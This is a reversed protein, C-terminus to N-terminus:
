DRRLQTFWHRVEENSATELDLPQLDVNEIKVTAKIDREHAADRWKILNEALKILENINKAAAGVAALVALVTEVDEKLDRSPESAQVSASSRLVDLLADREGADLHNNISVRIIIATSM